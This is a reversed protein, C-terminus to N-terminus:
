LLILARCIYANYDFTTASLCGDDYIIVNPQTLMKKLATIDNDNYFYCNNAISLHVNSIKNLDLSNLKNQFCIKSIEFLSPLSNKQLAYNIAFSSGLYRPNLEILIAEKDNMIFDAGCIGRYGIAQLKKALLNATLLIKKSEIDNPNCYQNGHYILNNRDNIITQKSIALIVFASSDVIIHCSYDKYGTYYPSVLYLQDNPLQKHIDKESVDNLLYTGTGGGSCNKQIVFEKFKGFKKTLNNITCESLSLAAFAPTNIDNSLWLRSLTKHRLFNISSQSNLSVFYRKLSPNIECLKYAFISNYFHFECNTGHEKIKVGINKLVFRTFEPGYNSVLRNEQCFSINRTKNSGYFTISFDFYECTLIDSERKGIWVRYM